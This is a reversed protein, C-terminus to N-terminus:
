TNSGPCTTKPISRENKVLLLYWTPNLFYNFFGWRNNVILEILCNIKLHKIYKFLKIHFPNCFVSLPNDLAARAVYENVFTAKLNNKDCIIKLKPLSVLAAIDHKDRPIRRLLRATIFYVWRRPFTAILPLQWHPDAIMNLPSWRNPTSLYIVGNPRLVRAAESLIREPYTVHEIVDQLIICDFESDKFSLSHADCVEPGFNIGNARLLSQVLMIYKKRIDIAVVKARRAVFEVSTGGSGCGIDLVMANKITRKSSVVDAVTIGRQRNQTHYTHWLTYNPHTPPPLISDLNHYLRNQPTGSTASDSIKRNVAM